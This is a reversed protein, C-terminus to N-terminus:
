CHRVLCSWVGALPFLIRDLWLGGHLSWWLSVLPWYLEHPKPYKNVFFLYEYDPWLGARMVLAVWVGFSAAFTSAAVVACKWFLLRRRSLPFLMAWGLAPLLFVATTKTLMMLTFLVGIGASTWLPRQFRELRVALNLAGLMLTMLLPELIALRSFAYLFPSTVLFTL